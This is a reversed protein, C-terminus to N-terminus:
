PEVGLETTTGLWEAPKVIFHIRKAEHYTGDMTQYPAIWLSLVEEHTRIPSDPTRKLELKKFAKSKDQTSHSSSQKDVESLRKCRVGDKYPCDFKQNACATLGIMSLLIFAKVFHEQIKLNFLTHNLM